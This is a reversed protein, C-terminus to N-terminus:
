TGWLLVLSSFPQTLRSALSSASTSERSDQLMAMGYAPSSGIEFYSGIKKKPAMPFIHDVVRFSVAYGCYQVEVYRPPFFEAPQPDLASHRVQGAVDRAESQGPLETIGALAVLRMSAVQLQCPLGYGAECQLGFMKFRGLAYM